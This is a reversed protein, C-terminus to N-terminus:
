EQAARADRVGVHDTASYRRDDTLATGRETTGRTHLRSDDSFRCVRIAGFRSTTDCCLLARSPRCLLSRWTWLGNGFKRVGRARPLLSRPGRTGWQHDTTIFSAAPGEGSRHHRGCACQRRGHRRDWAYAVGLGDRVLRVALGEELPDDRRRAHQPRGTHHTGAADVLDVDEHSRELCHAERNDVHQVLCLGGRREREDVSGERRPLLALAHRRTQGLRGDGGSVCRQNPM